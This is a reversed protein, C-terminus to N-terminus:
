PGAATIAAGESESIHTTTLEPGSAGGPSNPALGFKDLPWYNLLAKGVILEGPILGVQPSRSDLSNNRNDGLIYYHDEPISLRARSDNWDTSIYPEDLLFDNIYVNGQKIEVTEGPLGIVRKILDQDPRRPDHLVVIDGREPGHFVSRREDEEADIFPLFNSLKDMNVESYVLKTVLLFQGDELTPYMSNGEVRFNQFSARVALFVLIALLTTEVIGRVLHRGKDRPIEELAIPKPVPDFTDSPVSFISQDRREPQELPPLYTQGWDEARTDMRTPTPDSVEAVLEDGGEGLLEVFSTNDEAEAAAADLDDGSIDSPDTDAIEWQQEDAETSEGLTDGGGAGSAYEPERFSLGSTLEPQKGTISPEATFAEESLATEDGELTEPDINRVTENRERSKEVWDRMSEVISNPTSKEAFMDDWRPSDYKTSSGEPPESEPDELNAEETLEPAEPEEAPSDHKSDAAWLVEHAVDHLEPKDPSGSIQASGFVDDWHTSQERHLRRVVLPSESVPPEGTELPGESPSSEGSEGETPPETLNAEHDAEISDSAEAAEEKARKLNRQIRERLERNKGESREWVGDPLDFIWGEGKETKPEQDGEPPNSDAM